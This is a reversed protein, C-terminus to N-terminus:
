QRRPLVIAGLTRIILLIDFSLSARRLYECNLALKKPMIERIYHIERDRPEIAGLLREEDRYRLTAPDTLGPRTKLIRRQGPSYLAVYSALEPRPGVVSMQGGLVNLLQPLEDLKTARLARGLRTIRPDGRATISPGATGEPKMTRFKLLNFVAGDLGVRQQVFLVPRGNTALQLLAVLFLLPSLVILAMGSLVIDLTRKQGGRCYHLRDSDDRM